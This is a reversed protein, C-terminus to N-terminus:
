KKDGFKRKYQRYLIDIKEDNRYRYKILEKFGLEIVVKTVPTVKCNEIYRKLGCYLKEYDRRLGRTGLRWLFSYIIGALLLAFLIAVFIITTNM